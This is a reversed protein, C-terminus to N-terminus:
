NSFYFINFRIGGSSPALSCTVQSSDGTVPSQYVNLVNTGGTNLQVIMPATTTWTGSLVGVNGSYNIGSSNAPLGGIVLSSGSVASGQSTWALVGSCFVVPGIKVYEGTQQSMTFNNTGDGITPTFASQSNVSSIVGSSGSTLVGGTGFTSVSLSSCSCSGATLSHTGCSLNGSNVTFNGSTDLTTGNNWTIASGQAVGSAYQTVLNTSQKHIMFNSNASSSDWIGGPIRWADFNIGIDDHNYPVIHVLPYVDNGSYMLLNPSATVAGTNGWIQLPASGNTAASTAGVYATTSTLNGVSTSGASLSHTGASINGTTMTGTFSSTGSNTLSSCSVPGCTVSNTGASISGSTITGTFLSTGSNTLSSCSVSGVTLSNTSSQPLYSSKVHDLASQVNSVSWTPAQVTDDYTTSKAKDYLSQNYAGTLSSFTPFASISSDASFNLIGTGDDAISNNLNIAPVSNDNNSYSISLQGNSVLRVIPEAPNGTNKIVSNDKLYMFVEQGTLTLCENTSDSTNVIQSDYLYFNCLYIPNFSLSPVGISQCILNVANLSSINAITVGSDIQVLVLSNDANANMFAARGMFDYSSTIHCEALSDDFYINLTQNVNVRSAKAVVLDWTGVINSGIVVPAGSRYIINVPNLDVGSTPIPQGNISGVNSLDGGNFSAGNTTVSNVFLKAWQKGGKDPQLPTLLDSVSM